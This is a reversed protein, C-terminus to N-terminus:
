NEYKFEFRRIDEEYYQEVLEKTGPWKEYTLQYPEKNPGRAAELEWSVQAVGHQKLLTNKWESILNEIYISYWEFDVDESPVYCSLPSWHHNRSGENFMNKVFEGFNPGTRRSNPFLVACEKRRKGATYLYHCSLVRDWPNKLVAFNYYDGYSFSDMDLQGILKWGNRESIIRKISSSGARPTEWWVIKKEKNAWRFTTANTADPHCECHSPYRDSTIDCKWKHWNM